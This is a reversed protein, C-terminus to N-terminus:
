DIPWGEKMPYHTGEDVYYWGTKSNPAQSKTDIFYYYVYKRGGLRACIVPADGNYAYTFYIEKRTNEDYLSNAFGEVCDDDPWAENTDHFDYIRNILPLLSKAVPRRNFGMTSFMPAAIAVFIFLICTLLVYKKM